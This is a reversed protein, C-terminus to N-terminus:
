KRVPRKNLLIQIYEERKNIFRNEPLKNKPVIVFSLEAEVMLKQDVYAKATTSCRNLDLSKITGTIECKDGPIVYDRFKAKHIMSLLVFFGDKKPFQEMHSQEALFGTLQAMSEIILVGPVVPFGPFHENFIEDTLTWCKIGEISNGIDMKTIRDVLYFRM